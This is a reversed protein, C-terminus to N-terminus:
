DAKELAKMPDWCAYRKVFPDWYLAEFKEEETADKPLAQVRPDENFCYIELSSSSNKGSAFFWPGYRPKYCRKGPCFGFEIHQLRRGPELNKDYDFARHSNLVEKEKGQIEEYSKGVWTYYFSNEINPGYYIGGPLLRFIRLIAREPLYKRNILPSLYKMENKINEVLLQLVPMSCNIMKDQNITSLIRFYPTGFFERYYMGKEAFNVEVDYYMGTLKKQARTIYTKVDGKLEIPKKDDTANIQKEPFAFFYSAGKKDNLEKLYWSITGPDSSYLTQACMLPFFLLVFFIAM